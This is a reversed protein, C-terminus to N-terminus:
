RRTFPQLTSPDHSRFRGASVRARRSGGRRAGPASLSVGDYRLPKSCPETIVVGSHGRPRVYSARRCGSGQPEDDWFLKRSDWKKGPGLMGDHCYCGFERLLSMRVTPSLHGARNGTRKGMAYCKM